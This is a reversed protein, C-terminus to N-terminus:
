QQKAGIQIDVFNYPPWPGTYQVLLDENAEEFGGVAQNFAEQDDRDVLFSRNVVLRDSFQDGRETAVALDDFRDAVEARIASEDVNVDAPTIVKLGLEVKGDVERLTRAFEPGAEELLNSLMATDKFAMGFQMPVITRGGDYHLVDQLVENHARVNEESQAPEVTDIDSVVASVPPHSVTYATDAGNVGDTEFEIDEQEIVGYVYIPSGEMGKLLAVCDVTDQKLISTM